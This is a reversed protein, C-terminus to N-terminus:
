GVWFRFASQELVLPLACPPSPYLNPLKSRTEVVFEILDDGIGEGHLSWTAAVARILNPFCTIIVGDAIANRSPGLKTVNAMPSAAM